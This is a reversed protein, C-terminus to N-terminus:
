KNDDCNNNYCNECIGDCCGDYIFFCDCNKCSYCNGCDDCEYIDEYCFVHDCYECNVNHNNCINKDCAYCINEDTKIHKKDCEECEVCKCDLELENCVECECQYPFFEWVKKYLNIEDVKTSLGDYVADRYTKVKMLPHTPSMGEWDIKISCCSM